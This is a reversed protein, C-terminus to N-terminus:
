VVGPSAVRNQQAKRLPILKRSAKDNEGYSNRCDKAYSLRKKEGPNRKVPSNGKKPGAGNVLTPERDENLSPKDTM